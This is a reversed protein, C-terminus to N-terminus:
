TAVSLLLATGRKTWFNGDYQGAKLDVWTMFSPRERSGTRIPYLYLPCQYYGEVNAKKRQIPKFHIIPMPNFLMMTEADALTMANMDWKAGELTFWKFYSGEKPLATLTSEDGSQVLFDFALADVSVMNKRASAQLLGTLFSTPFTLGGLWFGKPIGEFSWTNLQGIREILDPMWSSLPKLSPYAFLWSKPVKGEFLAVLVDEQEKSIVAFGQIGKMLLKISSSLTTLLKNYREIEQLLCVKLPSADSENRESVEEFDIPEPVRELLSNCTSMVAEDRSDNGGGGGGGGIMSIIISCMMETDQIASSIEANVHQGFAEPLEQLPLDRGYNKYATLSNEEPIYYTPLASLMFKPQLAAPSFFENVYAKLVRNDPHETVRGGYNAEAILYRIADWPIENPNEDLYMAVINECIDWDSDNFDYPINWGLMKFKRRELLVAHFWCLSFFLKRYKQTERPRNYAEENMNMLLRNVNAKLGKPPETTMKISGQLLQIPFKPTPSSSLFIRFIKHPGAEMVNFILKELDPLWPICLHCNALLGWFGQKSADELMKTAKPEQGQGLSIQQWSQHKATALAKVQATPDMGPTLVFLLPTYCSSEEYIQELDLPPPETFKPDMKSSIFMAVALGVRDPRICRIVILKQLLDLRGDWDGPLPEKEPEACSYWKKWDRLTQEFSAQFGKFTDLNADLETINDWTTQTIWDGSPNAAQQSRDLVQGGFLFFMYEKLDMLKQSQLVKATLHLSFLLKHKEFLGRCAYRYVALAHYQNLDDIREEVSGVSIKKGASTEISQIYLQTYADLAFQYMPDITVLDNLVFYLVASRFGAPRYNERAADIKLMTQEAINVQETVTESIVKSEQLTDILSLDDLLSGKTEALLRLIENELEVLRNKGKAVQVVLDNKQEELRPEEKMVVVGLLQDTLGQEVVIFNVITTKTSVEPTYHPNSLKTTIYFKFTINYDLVAEGVKISYSGPATEIINKALVPELSPDLEEKVNELLIPTGYEIAREVFRMIDKSSPDFVKLQRKQEMKRVWKNGQNQPDILLPFRRGRTSLVGNETSFSDTPLGQLNWDRVDTPDALFTSFSFDATVSVKLEKVPVLWEENVLKDRYTSGFPGAYSMFASSIICDGYLNEQQTDFNGLSVEWRGKEGALGTVLKEARELKIKLEEATQALEEKESNSAEFQDKLSQVLDQIKKLDANAKELEKNKRELSEQANKLKLRKPEVERYVEAYIKMAHVWQCLAGAASSVNMVLKPTFNPDKTYKEMKRLTSNTIADKDFNKIRQLFNVDNLETKAQAWSPTKEMVTMVACMTKMVMDPPKAYAKVESISKKDLKELADLAADLAPMAKELDRTADDALIKTEKAEKEIRVSDAEVAAQQADAKSREQVIVHLLEECEKAKKVCVEQKVELDESMVAVQTRADDLKNLGNRLKDASLGIEKQKERLLTMYGTVLELYNTPTVYNMRQQEIFMKTSYDAVATHARGFIESVPQQYEEQLDGEKLFKSAVEMLAEAPWPLFWIITTCSVLSPYMRCYDRFSSGIYSLCFSVHLNERIRSLFFEYLAEPGFPIGADKAPKEVSQRVAGLEDPSYINPVEGSSLLNAVDELFSEEIIETDSFLFTVPLGKSGAKEYLKKLDDLFQQHKYQKTIEVQFCTQDSIFSALRTLCHRGSGGVGVLLANGRPQRIIRLIRCCQEIADKFMVLPMPAKKFFQNYDEVKQEMFAKLGKRDAMQEYPPDEAEPNSLDIGAFVMDPDDGTIEKLRVQLTTDMVNDIMQRLKDRDDMNILRDSFVRCAEHYWLRLMQEKEEYLKPHALAVGQFIKSVDRLNFLYHSKEPTPLFGDIIAQFLAISALTMPEALNKIEETRFESLKHSSLNLFIRKVQSENPNVFCINNMASQLRQSIVARGGGPPGMACCLHIDLVYRLVQKKRDYWCGYDVWQRLLELPPQSGFTDKRPMNLDDVFTLMNKNGPPGYKNKIRKEIKSEIIEQTKDSSTMASMNITLSTWTQDDLGSIAQQVAITKGTGTTGVLLSHCHKANLANLIFMNRVTDVTPVIIKHFSVGEPPKYPNPLRDEWLGFELKEFNYGYEYVTQSTPFLNEIERVAQDFIMRSDATVSAGLSWILCFVFLKEMVEGAKEGQAEIDVRPSVAEYLRSLSEVANVDNIPVCETCHKRTKLCRPLWKEGLNKVDQQRAAPIFKEVWSNYFPWFGLDPPDFYVMGARSVTAPSAVSLDGVEFLLRVTPPMSIRDGNILTLVKNDDLVTNMSEIWLTDVPGDLVLWKEDSKEDQCMQRMVSSLVGDTWEMTALDYAGYLENMTISKPNIIQHQVKEMGEQGLRKLEIKSKALTKWCVSKGGLTGGVLMNGHRTIKTEYISICKAITHPVRQYGGEMLMQNIVEELKGYDPIPLKDGPFIDSLLAQYLPVDQSVWKPANMDNIARMLLIQEPAEPDKRKLAGACGLVSKINRLGFDYHDQKSMQQQMMQYLTFMKKALVKFDKYGESVLMIEMIMALDPVMMAVPRFLAKLNDPLESRGAYGPNMTIFVACSRQLRIMREEFMFKEKEERLAAQITMIQVAVVSLVTVDIRNFEDFCGWSGSQALGSFMRGLSKYDLGDSCNFVIVYMAMGKGLDKVSETKGTGAPGAPAGGRKLHMATTLTMYCRDTMPTVVLRGNNGQYEYGYPSCTNTQLVYCMAPQGASIEDTPERLEFRLQSAWNFNSPSETKLTIMRDQVDRAHVEITILAVLKSREVKSTPKRIMDSLKAIYKTQTRKLVRLANKQGKEMKHLASTCETTWAIQGSTILLQGPFEKVWKEKKMSKPNINATHCKCLDKRLSEIMRKEVVGLWVEVPGELVVPKVLKVKEGDPAVLGVSEWNRQQKAASPASLELTKVGEFCKKIHKQVLEPDRAQGLIELLDDNSLFYFRPFAQRKKELYDNLSKQIKELKNQMMMLNELMKPQACAKTALPDQFIRRLMDTFGANVEDFMVSEDPLHPRIDESGVFINELYMWAKQVQQIAECVESINALTREWHEVKTAFPLYFQSSKFGSLQLIHEELAQYLDETSRLKFYVGKHEVVDVKMTAWTKAIYELGNEIKAEKKADDALRAILDAHNVLRLDFVRQLTFGDSKPDFHENVEKIIMNFHRERMSEQRLNTILPMMSRFLELDAKMKQFVPWNQVNKDKGVLKRMRTQFAMALEDMDDCNLARFVSVKLQNWEQDWGDRIEWVTSLKEMELDVWALEKYTVADIGFLELKPAFEEESARKAGLQQKFNQLVGFAAENSINESKYPAQVMFNAKVERISQGFAALDQELGAKMKKKEKNNIMEAQALTERFKEMAPRMQAKKVLEEDPPVVEFEALKAYKAEIPSIRNEMDEDEKRCQDLLNIRYKLEDMDKMPLSLLTKTNNDFYELVKHMETRANENLLDTLKGQWQQCHYTLASKLPSFDTEIFDVVMKPDHQQIDSQIEKYRLIDQGVITLSRETKKYRRIFTDKDQSVIPQFSSNWFKMKDGLKVACNNFGRLVDKVYRICCDDDKSIEEFFSKKKKEKKLEAETPIVIANAAALDGADEAKQKELRDREVKVQLLHEGLRPIVTLTMTMDRCVLQLLDKLQNMPPKFDMKIDDLVASIRFLPSPETKNDGNLARCLEQLSTKVCKKLAEEIRKDIKEVYAKWERQVDAPHHEFFTYTNLMLETIKEHSAKFISQVEQRRKEQVMRFEDDRHVAKKEIQILHLESIQKCVYAIERNAKKFAKVYDFVKGCERCSDRVFFEKIGQSQWTFKTLGPGIKRDLNRIHHLFLRREEPQLAALIQNYDRVVRLVHERLVRLQDRQSAIEHAAYPVVIGSGQIKEWYYVEQFMKLLEKDFNSELQGGKARQLLASDEPRTLLGVQLRKGLNAEDMLKLEQVWEGFTQQVFSELMGHQMTYMDRASEQQASPELYCLMNLEEMQRQIRLMLGKVWLATGAFNPHGQIIPLMPKGRHEFERKIKQMEATFINYLHQGKGMVYTKIKERKALLYFADLVEVASQVTGVGDFASNIVNVYMVEVERMQNRFTTIDDQWGSATVNLCDYDVSQLQHLNKLFIDEIELLSKKIEPARTGGFVPMAQGRSHCAFQQLGECVELLDCCRQVFADIQVFITSDSFNCRRDSYKDILRCMKQYALKWERGCDISQQLQIMSSEVRGEFIDKLEITEQCRKIIENSMKRLLSSIRDEKRYYSSITWLVRVCNLINPLIAPIDPPKAESLRQCPEKLFSLFKLNEKAELTGKKIREELSRFEKLYASKAHELISLLRQLKSSQLQDHLRSLNNDRAHWFEIEDLPGSHEGESASDQQTTVEKIQRTWHILAMELRQVIDKDKAAAELNTFNDQPIYLVTKGKGQAAMETVTSMFKQVQSTFDKKVNEPWGQHSLSVPVYIHNMLGLLNDLLEGRSCGFMVASNLNSANCPTGPDRKYFYMFEKVSGQRIPLPLRDQVRGESEGKTSMTAFRLAGEVMWMYLAKQDVDELWAAAELSHHEQWHEKSAYGELQMRTDFFARIADSTLREM